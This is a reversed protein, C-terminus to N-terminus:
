VSRVELTENHSQWKVHITPAADKKFIRASEKKKLSFEKETNVRADNFIKSIESGEITIQLDGLDQEEGLYFLRLGEEANSHYVAKWHESKAIYHVDEQKNTSCAVLVVIMLILFCIKKM